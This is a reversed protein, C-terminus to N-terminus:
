TSKAANLTTSIKDLDYQSYIQSEDYIQNGSFKINKACCSDYCDDNIKCSQGELNPIFGDIMGAM